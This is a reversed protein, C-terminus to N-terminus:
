IGEDLIRRINIRIESELAQSKLLEKIIRDFKGGIEEGNCIRELDRVYKKIYPYADMENSIVRCSHKVTAHDKKGLIFGTTSQSHNCVIHAIYHIAQRKRLTDRNRTKVFVDEGFYKFAIKKIEILTPKNKM